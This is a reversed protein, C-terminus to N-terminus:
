IHTTLNIEWTIKHVATDEKKVTWLEFEIHM